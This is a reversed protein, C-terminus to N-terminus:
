GFAQRLRQLRRLLQPRRKMWGMAARAGLYAPAALRGLATVGFGTDHLREEVECIERKYRSDGVGLDLTTLGRAIADRAVEILLWEGPSAAAIEPESDYGVILGSLRPGSRLAGFVAVVRAGALLAHMEMLPTDGQTLRRLLDRVQARAFLDREGKRRAQAAKQALFADLYHTAKEGGIARDHAM